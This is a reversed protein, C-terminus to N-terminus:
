VGYVELKRRLTNLGIGLTRATRSKNKDMLNYVNLIHEKEVQALTAITENQAPHAAAAVTKKKV